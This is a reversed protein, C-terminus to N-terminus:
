QAKDFWYVRELPMGGGPVANGLFDVIPDGNRDKPTPFDILRKGVAIKPIRECNDVTCTADPVYVIKPTELIEGETQSEVLDDTGAFLDIVYLTNQSLNEPACFDANSSVTGLTNFLVKGQFTLASSLVKEGTTSTLNRVWGRYDPALLDNAAVPADELDTIRVLDAEPLSTVENDYIVFFKDEVSTSLPNPRSGSGIAISTTLRGRNRFVAVDLEEFFQRDNAGTGGLEAVRHLTAENLDNNTSADGDFNGANLDIRWINAGTDGFYLRDISNNRDIDIARIRAPVANPLAAQTFNSVNGQSFATAVSWVEDGTIADVIYVNNGGAQEVGNDDDNFGGGFIVVPKAETNPKFLLNAVVPQSWSDGTGFSNSWALRPNDPDTVELATYSTGGRRLGFFLYAKEGSDLVNNGANASGSEDLWITIPSDVGYIHNPLAAGSFQDKINDLLENPMYAFAETGNRADTVSAYDNIAHLYGENSGVFIINRGGAYSLQVPKSHIIDGVHNRVTNDTPNTGKIFTVLDDKLATDAASNNDLGFDENPLANTLDVLATGNDTLVNRTTPNIKNAIGGSRIADVSPTNDSWLDRATELLGNSLPDLAANGDADTLVGNVLRFKKLNGPWLSSSRDFVPVYVFEGNTLSTSTDVTFSPPSFSRAQGELSSLINGFADVLSDADDALIAQGGNGNNSLLNLYDIAGQNELALGVAYTQINQIDDFADAHDTQNLYAALEPGCRGSDSGSACGNAFGNGILNSVRNASRNETPEGDTLLVIANAACENVIPSKYVANGEVRTTVQEPTTVTFDCTYRTVTAPPADCRTRALGRARIVTEDVCITEELADTSCNTEVSTSFDRWDPFQLQCQAQTIGAPCRFNRNGQVENSCNNGTGCSQDHGNVACRGFVDNTEVVCNTGNNQNNRTERVIDITAPTVTTVNDLQGVYTAPHASRIDDATRKGWDVDEGRFYIAAEYLADVIPTIGGASWIEPDTSLLGLYERSNRAGTEPMYSIGKHTFTPNQNLIDQAPTDIIPSVPYTIGHARNIGRNNQANGSFVSLGFNVRNFREDNTVAQFASSLAELRTETGGVIPTNMSGSLDMVFLVNADVTDETNIIDIDDAYSVSSFLTLALAVLGTKLQSSM